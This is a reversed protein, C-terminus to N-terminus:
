MTIDVVVTSVAALFFDGREDFLLDLSVDEPCFSVAVEDLFMVIDARDGDDSVLIGLRGACTLVDHLSALREHLPVPRPIGSSADSVIRATYEDENNHLM